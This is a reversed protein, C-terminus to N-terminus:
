TLNEPVLVSNKRLYLMLNEVKNELNQHKISLIQFNKEVAQTDSITLHPEVQLFLERKKDDALQYYTDLYFSHGILTEAFDRGCVNGVTTRFFKRFAHFHIAQKKNSNKLNLDPVKRIAKLLSKQLISEAEFVPNTKLETDQKYLNKSISTRGFVLKDKTLKINGDDWGHYRKLYDKLAQTAEGTLFAERPTRTKTTEARLHITAPKVEFDIDSIKIQVLEGIRMGSSVAVLIAAQLKPSVNRLVRLIIEKTLPIEVANLKRPLSVIQKFDESYIKIGYYRLFEKTATIRLAISRPSFGIKDQFVVFNRLLQYVDIKGEKLPEVIEHITLQYDTKLFKEFSKLCTRYTKITEWSHSRVYKSDLFKDLSVVQIYM